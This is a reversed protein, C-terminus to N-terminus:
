QIIRVRTKGLDYCVLQLSMLFARKCRLCLDSYAHEELQKKKNIWITNGCMCRINYKDSM